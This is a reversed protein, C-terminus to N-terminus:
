SSANPISPTPTDFLVLPALDSGDQELFHAVALAFIGGTSWGALHIPALM